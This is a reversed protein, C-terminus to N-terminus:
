VVNKTKETNKIVIYRYQEDELSSIDYGDNKLMRNINPTISNSIIKVVNYQKLHKVISAYTQETNSLSMVDCILMGMRSTSTSTSTVVNETADKKKSITFLTDRSDYYETVVEYGIMRLDNLRAMKWAHPILIEVKNFISTKEDILGFFSKTMLDEPIICRYVSISACGDTNLYPNTIKLIPSTYLLQYGVKEVILIVEQVVDKSFETVDIDIHCHGDKLKELVLDYLKIIEDTKNKEIIAKAINLASFESPVALALKSMM